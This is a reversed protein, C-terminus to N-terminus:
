APRRLLDREIEPLHKVRISLFDSVGSATIRERNFADVVLQTFLPGAGSIQVRHHPAFGEPQQAARQAYEAIFQRKERYHAQTALNLTLLRRLITERSAHFTRALVRLVDDQCTTPGRQGAVHESRLLVDRPVITAGAVHNCFIEVDEHDNDAGEDVDCVGGRNLLVHAFEHILTFIRGYISDKINVVVAPLPREAISFGRLEAIEVDTAQFALAGASEIRARWQRFAEYQEQWTRQEESRIDLLARIRGAVAEPDDRLSVTLDLSAPEADLQEYLALAIERRERCRRIALLLDPSSRDVTQREIRRFDHIPEEAAPPRPLYFAALPRRYLQAIKRLQPVSPRAEGREWAELRDASVNLRDAAVGASFGATERAWVLLEPNARAEIRSAM